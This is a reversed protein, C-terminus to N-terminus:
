AEPLYFLKARVIKRYEGPTVDNHRKFLRTFYNLDRFGAIQAIDSVSLNTDKLLEASRNLRLAQLYQVATLGTANKFRRTFTRSNLGAIRALDDITIEQQWQDHCWEQARVIDEDHHQNSGHMFFPKEYSRNIEHSFHREVIRTITNGYRQEVLYLILDSLANISGACYINEGYTIFQRTNLELHPYRKRFRDFFYWHTTVPIDDLLGEEALFCVSTGTAILTSGRQYCGKLWLRLALQQHVTPFPNGWIPPVVIWDPQEITAFTKDPVVRMGGTLPMARRTESVRLLNLREWNEHRKGPRTRVLLEAAHLM